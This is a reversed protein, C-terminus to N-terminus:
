RTIILKTGFGGVGRFLNMPKRTLFLSKLLIINGDLLDCNIKNQSDIANRKIKIQM